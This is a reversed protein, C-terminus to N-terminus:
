SKCKSSGVDRTVLTNFFVAVEFAGSADVHRASAVRAADAPHTTAAAVATSGLFMLTVMSLIGVARPVMRM